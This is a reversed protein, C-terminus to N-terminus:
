FMVAIIGAWLIVSSALIFLLTTRPHWKRRSPPDSARGGAISDSSTQTLGISPVVRDAM